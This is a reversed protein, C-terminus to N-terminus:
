RTRTSQQHSASSASRTQAPSRTNTHHLATSPEDHQALSPTRIFLPRVALHVDKLERVIQARSPFLTVSKTGLDRLNFEQKTADM